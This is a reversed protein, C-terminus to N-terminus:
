LGLLATHLGFMWAWTVFWGLSVVMAMAGRVIERPSQRGVVQYQVDAKRANAWIAGVYTAAFGIFLFTVHPTAKDGIAEGFEDFLSPALFFITVATTASIEKLQLSRDYRRRMAKVHQDKVQPDDAGVYGLLYDNNPSRASEDVYQERRGIWGRSPTMRVIGIYVLVEQTAFALSYWIASLLVLLWPMLYPPADFVGLDRFPIFTIVFGSTIYTLDRLYFEQYARKILDGLESMPNRWNFANRCGIGCLDHPAVIPTIRSIRLAVV